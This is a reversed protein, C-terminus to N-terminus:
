FKTNETEASALGVRGARYIDGAGEGTQRRPSRSKRSFLFCTIPHLALSNPPRVDAAVAAAAVGDVLTLDKDLPYVAIEEGAVGQPSAAFVIGMLNADLDARAGVQALAPDSLLLYRETKSGTNYNKLTM